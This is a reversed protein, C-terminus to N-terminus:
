GLFHRRRESTVVGRSNMGKAGMEKRGKKGKWGKEERGMGGKEPFIEVAPAYIDKFPSAM